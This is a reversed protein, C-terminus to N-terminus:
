ALIGWYGNDSSHWSVVSYPFNNKSNEDEVFVVKGLIVWCVKEGNKTLENKYEWKGNLATAFDDIKTTLKSINIM